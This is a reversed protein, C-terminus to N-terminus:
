YIEIPSSKAVCVGEKIKPCSVLCSAKLCTSHLSFVRRRGVRLSCSCVVAFRCPVSSFFCAKSGDVRKREENSWKVVARKGKGGLEERPEKQRGEIQSFSFTFLREPVGAGPLKAPHLSLSFCRDDRGLVKVRGGEWGWRYM